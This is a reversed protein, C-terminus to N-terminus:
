NDGDGVRNGVHDDLEAEVRRRGGDGGDADNVVLQGSRVGARLTCGLRVHVVVFL